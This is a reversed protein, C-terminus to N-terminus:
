VVIRLNKMSEELNKYMDSKSAHKGGHRMSTADSRRVTLLTYTSAAKIAGATGSTPRAINRKVAVIELHELGHMLREVTRVSLGAKYAILAGPVTFVDSQQDSALETMALYLSRASAAQNSEAFTETILRLIAKECWCWPRSNGPKKGRADPKHKGQENTKTTEV